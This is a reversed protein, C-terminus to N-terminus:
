VYKMTLVGMDLGNFGVKAFVDVENTKCMLEGLFSVRLFLDFSRM